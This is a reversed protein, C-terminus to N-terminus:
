AHCVDRRGRAPLVRFVRLVQLQQEVVGVVAERDDIRAPDDDGRGRAEVAHEAVLGALEDADVAQRQDVGVVDLVDRQAKASYTPPPFSPGSTRM